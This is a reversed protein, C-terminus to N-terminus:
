FHLEPFTGDPLLLIKELHLFVDPPSNVNFIVAATMSSNANALIREGERAPIQNTRADRVQDPCISPFDDAYYAVFKQLSLDAALRTLFGALYQLDDFYAKHLKLEEYLFHLASLVHPLSSFLPASTDATVKTTKQKEETEDDDDTDDDGEEESGGAALSGKKVKAASRAVNDLGLLASLDPGTEMHLVSRVVHSWDGDSGNGNRRSKKTAAARSAVELPSASSAPTETDTPILMFHDARYGTMGLLCQVFLKWEKIPSLCPPGPANRCAYWRARLATSLEKGLVSCIADISMQVLETSKLDPLTLRLFSSNSYELTIQNEVADRLGIIRPESAASASTNSAAAAATAAAVVSLRGGRTSGGPRSTVPSLFQLSENFSVDVTASPPRSSTVLRPRDVPTSPQSIAGGGGQMAVLNLAAIEQAVSHLALGEQAKSVPSQDFSVCSVKTTGSYLVLSSRPSRELVAIMGIREVYAADVVGGSSIHNVAGIFLQEVEEDPDQNNNNRIFEVTDKRRRRRTEVPIVSLQEARAQLLCIFTTTGHLDGAVFVKTAAEGNNIRSVAAPETWVHDFCLSVDPSVTLEEEQDTGDATLGASSLAAALAAAGVPSGSALGASTFSNAATSTAAFPSLAGNSVTAAVSRKRRLLSHRLASNPMTSTQNNPSRCINALAKLSSPSSVASTKPTLMNSQSSSTNLSFSGSPTAVASPPATSAATPAASTMDTMTTAASGGLIGEDESALAAEYQIAEDLTSQRVHWVHHQGSNSNFTICISPDKAVHLIKHTDNMMERLTSGGKSKTLIRSYDDLPHLLGFWVPLPRTATAAASPDLSNPNSGTHSKSASGANADRELVLGYKSPWCRKVPFQLPVPYDDGNDYFVRLTEKELVCTALVSPGLDLRGSAAPSGAPNDPNVLLVNARGPYSHFRTWFTQRIPSEASARYVKVRHGNRLLSVESSAYSQDGDPSSPSTRTVLEYTGLGDGASFRQWSVSSSPDSASDYPVGNESTVAAIM